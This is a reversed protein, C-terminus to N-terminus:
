LLVNRSTMSVPGLTISISMDVGLYTFSEVVEIIDGAISVLSGLLFSANTTQIKTKM